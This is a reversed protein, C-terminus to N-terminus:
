CCKGRAALIRKSAGEFWQHAEDLRSSVAVVEGNLILLRQNQVESERECWTHATSIFSQLVATLFSLYDQARTM